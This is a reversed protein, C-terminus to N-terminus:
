TGTMRGRPMRSFGWVLLAFTAMAVLAWTVESGYSDGEATPNGATPYGSVRGADTVDDVTGIRSGSSTVTVAADGEAFAIGGLLVALVLLMPIARRM